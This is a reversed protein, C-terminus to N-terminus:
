KVIKKFVTELDPRSFRVQKIKQNSYNVVNLLYHLVQYSDSNIFLEDGISYSNIKVQPYQKLREIITEYQKEATSLYVDYNKAYKDKLEDLSGQEVVRGDNLVAVDDCFAEVEDLFHSTVIVTKGQKNVEKVINWTQKRLIPDLDSTPEDLILIEPSHVLACAISLRKQMGGSLQNALKHRADELNTLDLLHKISDYKLKRPVDYLSGFHSLNEEVSLQPYVSPHQSSFGFMRNIVLPHSYVSKFQGNLNFLVDGADPQVFGIMSNLLTTKGAGSMGVIGHIKGEEIELNVNDLVVRHRYVKVYNDFKIITKM